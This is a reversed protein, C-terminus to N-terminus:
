VEVEEGEDGAGASFSLVVTFDRQVSGDSGASHWFDAGQATVVLAVRLAEARIAELAAKTGIEVRAMVDRM